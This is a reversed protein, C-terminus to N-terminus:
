VAEEAERAKGDITELLSYNKGELEEIYDRMDLYAYHYDIIYHMLKMPNHALGSNETSMFDRLLAPYDENPKYGDHFWKDFNKNM